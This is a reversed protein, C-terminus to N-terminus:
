TPPPHSQALREGTQLYHNIAAEWDKLNHRFMSDLAMENVRKAEETLGLYTYTVSAKSTAPSEGPECGITIWWIRADTFVTYEIFRREPEYKSVIWTSPSTDHPAHAHTQFVMHEHVEESGSHLIQPQWGEAWDKERLPGFLPFVDALPSNLTITSTKSVVQPAM